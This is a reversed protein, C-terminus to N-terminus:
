RIVQVECRTFVTTAFGLCVDNGGGGDLTQSDSNGVICDNGQRGTITRTSANGVLLDAQNTGTLTQGTAVITNVLTLGACEAPKLENPGTPHSSEGLRSPPVSNAATDASWVSVVALVGLAGAAFLRVNRSNLRVRRM